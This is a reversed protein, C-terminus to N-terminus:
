KTTTNGNDFENEKNTSSFDNEDDPATPALVMAAFSGPKGYNFKIMLPEGELLHLIIEPQNIEALKALFPFFFSSSYRCKLTDFDLLEDTNSKPSRHNDTRVEVDAHITDSEDDTQTPTTWVTTSHFAKEYSESQENVRLVFYVHRVVNHANTTDDSNPTSLPLEYVLIELESPHLSKANSIFHKWTSCEIIIAHDWRIALSYRDAENNEDVVTPFQIRTADSSPDIAILVISNPENRPRILFLNGPALNRTREFLRGVDLTFEYIDAPDNEDVFTEVDLALQIFVASTNNQDSRSLEIGSRKKQENEPPIVRFPAITTAQKLIQVTSVFTQRDIKVQWFIPELENRSKGQPFFHKLITPITKHKKTQPEMSNAEESESSRKKRRSTM